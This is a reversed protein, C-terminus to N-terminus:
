VPERDHKFVLCYHHHVNSVFESPYGWIGLKKNDQCWIREGKFTLFAELRITLDWALHVMRGEPSRLNQIVIVLYGGRRLVRAVGRFIGELADLFAEYDRINGLDRADDQSYVVDLGSAERAKHTSFVNGRSMSLMDWYPPSTLVFDVPALGAEQLTSEVLASDQNFMRERAAPVHQGALEFYKPNVELGVGRRGCQEAALVTSGVGMFPDLVTEGPKTFFEVFEAALAEPYKAPHQVQSASRRPPNHVVWSRTFRIWQKGTLANLQNRPHVKGAQPPDAAAQVSTEPLAKRAKRVKPSPRAAGEEAPPSPADGLSPDTPIKSPIRKRASM